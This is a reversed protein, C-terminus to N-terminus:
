KQAEIQEVLENLYMWREMKEELQAERASKEEMLENLRTYNTASKGIEQELDGISQELAAIDAEITEWERQEKFSLKRKKEGGAAQKWNNRNIPLGSGNEDSDGARVGKQEGTEQPHRASWAIQYDTFGGEYQTVKGQGEFAFIRNVVRDLFYRDHSVAIVIGAFSDLYDELITLTPIDIDNTIEDLLLVNPAAALVKLLYLRKKEGGSLKEIPAYQMSSDFLFQELLKTASILGDKQPFISQLM